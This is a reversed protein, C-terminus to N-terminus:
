WIILIRTTKLKPSTSVTEANDVALKQVRKGWSKWDITNGLKELEEFSTVEEKFHDMLTKSFGDILSLVKASDYKAKGERLATVYDGFAKLGPEFGHHQEVNKDMYIKVESNMEELWPFAFNEETGHHEHLSFVFAHMFIAFDSVDTELKVNPAQLYICNLIRIFVNHVLAM